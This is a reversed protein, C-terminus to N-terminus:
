LRIELSTLIHHYDLAGMIAQVLRFGASVSAPFRGRNEVVYRDFSVAPVTGLKLGFIPLSIPNNFSAM